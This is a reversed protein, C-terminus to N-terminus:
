FYYIHPANAGLRHRHGNSGRVSDNVIATKSKLASLECQPPRLHDLKGARRCIWPYVWRYPAVPATTGRLSPCAWICTLAFGVMM